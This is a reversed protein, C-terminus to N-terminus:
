QLIYPVLSATRSPDKIMASCTASKHIEYGDIPTAMLKPRGGTPSFPDRLGPIYGTVDEDSKSYVKRINPEGETTGIDLIDMRYSEAFGGNFNGNNPAMIKHRIPDDYMPDVEVSVSINNPALYEVFQFGFGRSNSHLKSSASTIAEKDFLPTWGSAVDQVARHFLIAGREGTRVIFKRQDSPLKGISLETLINTILDVSFKNYFVTNSVEMQERLGAGAEIIHGGRDIQDTKGTKSDFSSRGYWLLRNKERAFEYEFRWNVVDLWTQFAKKQGSGDLEEFTGIFKEKIMNGPVTHQMRIRTFKNRFTTPSTFAIDGGKVSLTDSVPSYEKSFRKGSVLEEGPIGENRAANGYAEVTYVWNGNEQYPEEVIRIPYIENLEGVIVNVDSFWREGFVLEFTVGGRGVAFDSETVVSGQYRAEVLPINRDSSGILEWTYDHNSDLYLAPLQSLMNDLSNGYYESLMRGIMKSAVQPKSQFISGIHNRTTLGSWSKADSTQLFSVKM